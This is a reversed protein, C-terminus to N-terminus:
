ATIRGSRTTMLFFAFDTALPVASLQRMMLSIQGRHYTGHNAVHQMLNAVSLHTERVPLMRRLGEETVRNVFDIQEREIEAWKQQVSVFDPFRNPDFDANESSWMKELFDPTHSPRNWYAIWAWESTVIHVLTDRVSRFAGGLDRTFQETTLTAVADFTRNTAWRDFEFLQQIDHKTVTIPRRTQASRGPFKVKRTPFPLHM